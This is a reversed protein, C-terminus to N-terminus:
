DNTPQMFVEIRLRVIASSFLVKKNRLFVAFFSFILVVTAYITMTIIFISRISAPQRQTQLFQFGGAGFLQFYIWEENERKGKYTNHSLCCRTEM